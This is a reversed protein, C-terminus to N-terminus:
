DERNIKNSIKGKLNEIYGITFPLYGEIKKIYKDSFYEKSLIVSFLILM